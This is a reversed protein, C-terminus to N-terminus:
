YLIYTRFWSSSLFSLVDDKKEGQVREEESLIERRTTLDNQKEKLQNLTRRSTKEERTTKELVQREEIALVNAEAKSDRDDAVFNGQLLFVYLRRYEELSEQSL